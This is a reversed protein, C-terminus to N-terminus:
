SHTPSLISSLLALLHHNSIHHTHPSAQTEEEEMEEMDQYEKGERQKREKIDYYYSILGNQLPKIIGGLHPM